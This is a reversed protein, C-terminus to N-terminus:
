RYDGEQSQGSRSKWGFGEAVAGGKLYGIAGCILGGAGCVAVALASDFKVVGVALLPVAGFGMWMLLGRLTGGKIRM